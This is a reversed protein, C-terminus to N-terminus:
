VYVPKWADPTSVLRGDPMQVQRPRFNQLTTAVQRWNKAERRSVSWCPRSDPRHFSELDCGVGRGTVLAPTNVMAVRFPALSIVEGWPSKGQYDRSELCSQRYPCSGCSSMGGECELKTRSRHVLSPIRTQYTMRASVKSRRGLWTKETQGAGRNALNNSPCSPRTETLDVPEDFITTHVSAFLHSRARCM